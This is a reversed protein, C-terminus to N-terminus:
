LDLHASIYATMASEVSKKVADVLYESGGGFGVGGFGPEYFIAPKEDYRGFYVDVTFARFSTNKASSCDVTVSLYLKGGPSEIPKVRSRILVGEIASKIEGLPTGCKEGIWGFYNLQNPSGQKLVERFGPYEAYQDGYTTTSALFSLALILLKKCNM